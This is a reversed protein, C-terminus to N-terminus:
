QLEQAVHQFAGAFIMMLTQHRQDLLASEFGNPSWSDALANAWHKGLAALGTEPLSPLMQVNFLFIDLKQEALAPDFGLRGGESSWIQFSRLVEGRLKPFSDPETMQLYGLPIAAGLLRAVGLSLATPTKPQPATSGTWFIPDAWERIQGRM